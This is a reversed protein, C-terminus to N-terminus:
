LMQMGDELIPSFFKLLFRNHRTLFSKIEFLSLRTLKKCTPVLLKRLFYFM